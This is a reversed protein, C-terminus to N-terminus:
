QFRLVPSSCAAIQQGERRMVVLQDHLLGPGKWSKHVSAHKTSLRLQSKSVSLTRLLSLETRGRFKVFSGTWSVEERSVEEM